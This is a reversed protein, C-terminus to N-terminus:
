ADAAHRVAFEYDAKPLQTADLMRPILSRDTTMARFVLGITVDHDPRSEIVIDDGAAIEGEELVRLYAGPRGEDTFRKVWHPEALWNQFVVCPFRPRTVQLLTTGIRWTEGILAGTVDLGRTSLNEGFQGPTLERGLIAAWDNLDETAYAYVAQEVGGHNAKDSQSDGALGLALVSVRCDVSRKDISSVGSKGPMPKARGVNVSVVTAHPV